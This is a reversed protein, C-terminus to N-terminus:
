LCRGPGRAGLRVRPRDTRAERCNRDPYWKPSRLGRRSISAVGRVNTNHLSTTADGRRDIIHRLDFPKQALLKTFLGSSHMPQKPRKPQALWRSVMTPVPGAPSGDSRALKDRVLFGGGNTAPVHIGEGTDLPLAPTVRAREMAISPRRWGCNFVLCITSPMESKNARGM